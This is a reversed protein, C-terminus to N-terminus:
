IMKTRMKSLKRGGTEHQRAFWLFTNQLVNKNVINTSSNIMGFKENQRHDSFFIYTSFLNTSTWKEVPYYQNLVFTTKHFRHPILM